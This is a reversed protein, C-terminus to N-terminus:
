DNEVYGRAVHLIFTFGLYAGIKGFSAQERSGTFQILGIKKIVKSNDAECHL